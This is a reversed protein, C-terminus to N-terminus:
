VLMFVAYWTALWGAGSFVAAAALTKIGAGLDLEVLRLGVLSCVISCVFLSLGLNLM